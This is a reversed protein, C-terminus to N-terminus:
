VPVQQSTTMNFKMRITENKLHPCVTAKRYGQKAMKNSSPSKVLHVGNERDLATHKSVFLPTLSCIFM